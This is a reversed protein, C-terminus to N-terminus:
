GAMSLMYVFHTRAHTRAHTHTHTHTCTRTHTYHPPVTLLGGRYFAWEDIVVLALDVWALQLVDTVTYSSGQRVRCAVVKKTGLIHFFRDFVVM